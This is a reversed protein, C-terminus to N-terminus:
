SDIRQRNATATFLVCPIAGSFCLVGLAITTVDWGYIEQLGGAALPGLIGAAALSCNMLSFSSAFMDCQSKESQEDAVFTCEAGLPSLFFIITSGALTLLGCLLIMQEKSNHDVLRLLLLPPTTLLFGAVAVWKAGFKDSLAGALPGALAPIAITLFLLGAQLATWDFTANVFLPLVACLSAVICENIFCGYLAALLRPSRILALVGHLRTSTTSVESVEVKSVVKSTTASSSTSPPTSNMLPELRLATEQYPPPPQDDCKETNTEVPGAGYIKRPKEKMLVRLGIDFVGLGIMIAFVAMKGAKDYVLGGILPSIIIGINNCSMATGMWQGVEDKEITDVLVALGVTYLISSSLGQLIRSALMMGFSNSLGFLVTGFTILTIGFYWPVRRSKSRDVYWACLPAGFFDALAFAAILVSTSIQMKSEHVMNQDKLIFPIVPAVIGYIFGDSFTATCITFLIFHKSSRVAAVQASLTM